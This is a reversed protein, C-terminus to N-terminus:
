APPGCEIEPSSTNASESSAPKLTDMFHLTVESAAKPWPKNQPQPATTGKAQLSNTGSRRDFSLPAVTTRCNLSDM